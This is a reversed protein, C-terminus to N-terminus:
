TLKQVAAEGCAGKPSNLFQAPYRKGDAKSM